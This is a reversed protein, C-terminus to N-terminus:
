IVDKIPYEQESVTKARTGDKNLYRRQKALTHYFLGRM